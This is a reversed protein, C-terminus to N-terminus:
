FIRETISASLLPIGTNSFSNTLNLPFSSPFPVLPTHGGIYSGICKFFTTLPYEKNEVCMPYLFLSWKMKLFLIQM